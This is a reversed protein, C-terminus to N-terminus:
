ALAWGISMGILVAPGQIATGIGFLIVAEVDGIIKQSRLRAILWAALPLELAIASVLGPAYSGLTIAQGIHFFVNAFRAMVLITFLRMAWGPRMSRWALLTASVSLLAIFVVAGAFVETTVPPISSWWGPLDSAHDELWGEIVLLEEIEHPIFFIPGLAVFRLDRAIL